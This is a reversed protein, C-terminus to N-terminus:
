PKIFYWVGPLNEFFLALGKAQVKLLRFCKKLLQTQLSLCLIERKNENYQVLSIKPQLINMERIFSFTLLKPLLHEESRSNLIYHFEERKREVQRENSGWTILVVFGM